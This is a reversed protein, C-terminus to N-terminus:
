ETEGMWDEPNNNITDFLRELIYGGYFNKPDENEANIIFLNFDRILKDAPELGNGVEQQLFEGLLEMDFPVIVTTPHNDPWLTLTEQETGPRLVFLFAQNIDRPM